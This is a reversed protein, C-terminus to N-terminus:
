SLELMRMDQTPTADPSIAHINIAAGARLEIMSRPPLPFGTATTVGSNGLYVTKNGNHYVFLYKRNALDTTLLDTGGVTNDVTTATTALATNALAADNAVVNISGDANIDLLDTGDGLAVSDTTHSLDRIDLDTATVTVTEGGLTVFLDGTANTSFPIYDGDAALATNADNRVALPMVGADGSVHVADEAHTISQIETLISGTDADITTLLAEIDGINTNITTLLAESGEDTVYLEGVANVKFPAYDGDADVSSALTDQRVALVFGGDDGTTHASDEAYVDSENVTISADQIDVHLAGGTSRLRDWNDGAADYAFAFARADLGRFTNAVNDSAGDGSTIENLSSDVLLSMLKDSDAKTQADTVDFNIQQKAM